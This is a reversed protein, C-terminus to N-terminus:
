TYRTCRAATVASVTALSTKHSAREHYSFLDPTCLRNTLELDGFSAAAVFVLAALGVLALALRSWSRRGEATM